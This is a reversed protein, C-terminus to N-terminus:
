SHVYKSCLYEQRRQMKLRDKGTRDDYGVLHLLGHILYLLTEYTHTTHYIKSQKIATDTSIAIEAAIENTSASLDFSIVDTPGSRKLFRLNLEKIKKDNVFCVSISGQKRVGESLLTDLIIRKIRKPNIPIKCQLNKIAIEVGGNWSKYAHLRYKPLAPDM